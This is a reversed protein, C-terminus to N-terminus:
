NYIKSLNKKNMMKIYSAESVFVVSNHERFTRKNSYNIRGQLLNLYGNYTEPSLDCDVIFLNELNNLKKLLSGEKTYDELFEASSILYDSQGSIFLSLNYAKVQKPHQPNYLKTTGLNAREIFLKM